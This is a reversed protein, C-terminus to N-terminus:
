LSLPVGIASILYVMLSGGIVFFFLWCIRVLGFVPRGNMIGDAFYLSYSRSACHNQFWARGTGNLTRQVDLTQEVEGGPPPCVKGVEQFRHVIQQYVGPDDSVIVIADDGGM